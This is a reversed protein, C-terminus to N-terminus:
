KVDEKIAMIQVGANPNDNDDTLRCWSARKSEDQESVAAHLTEVLDREQEDLVCRSAFASPRRLVCSICGRVTVLKPQTCLENSPTGDTHHSWICYHEGCHAPKESDGGKDYCPSSCLAEGCNSCVDPTSNDSM